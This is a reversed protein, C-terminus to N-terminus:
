GPRRVVGRVFLDGGPWAVAEVDFAPPAPMHPPPLRDVGDHAGTGIVRAAIFAWLEDALGAAFLSRFVGSGGEVLLNTCRRRGLAACVAAMRAAPDHEPLILVECGAAELAAVRDRPPHPGTAVIVPTERATRVLRSALPLRARADLVIRVPQRGAPPPGGATDPSPMRATLLPDDALVTGIGVAIGDVRGRLEHVIARSERSSIWRDREPVPPVVASTAAPPGHVALRGDLSAAWKAIVWPRGHEVLMRFPATLRRAEAALLGVDVEIGAARLAAIGGGAVAPFPDEMAVIVRAVGAAIIATTCPPTKGHHCCPELTVFLTGGRAADGAAALAAAEAHPGGFRAHWGESVIGGDPAVLVAGVPPNPEVAGIGRAALELARRMAAVAAPPWTGAAPTPPPTAAPYSPIRSSM